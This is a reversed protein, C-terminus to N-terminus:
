LGGKTWGKMIVHQLTANWKKLKHMDDVDSTYNTSNTNPNRVSNNSSHQYKLEQLLANIAAYQTTINVVIQELVVRDNTATSATNDMLRSYSDIIKEALIAGPPPVQARSRSAAPHM